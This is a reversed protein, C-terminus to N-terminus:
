GWTGDDRVRHTRRGQILTELAEVYGGAVFWEGAQDLHFVRGHEDIALLSEYGVRGLPFLRARIVQGFEHLVDAFHRGRDSCIEFAQSRQDVGPARRTIVLMGTHGYAEYVAPFAQHRFERGNVAVIDEAMTEAMEAQIDPAAAPRWGAHLLESATVDSFRSPDPNPRPPAVVPHLSGTNSWPLLALRTLVHVCSECPENPKGALEDGPPQIQFTEFLSGGLVRRAEDLALPALGDLARRRDVDHLADSCVILEAHRECGRVTEQPTQGAMQERVLPHHVLEQDGKAGRAIYVRGQVTAHAAVSPATRRHIERRLQVEPDATKPPDVIEARQERYIQELTEAPWNPWTSVRGTARDIVRVGTGVESPSFLRRVSATRVAFGLDFEEVTARFERDRTLSESRAWAAAVADADARTIM